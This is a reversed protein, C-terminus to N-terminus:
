RLAKGVVLDDGAGRRMDQFTVKKLLQLNVRLYGPKIIAGGIRTKIIDAPAHPIVFAQEAGFQDMHFVSLAPDFQQPAVFIIFQNFM